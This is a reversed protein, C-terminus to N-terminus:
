GLDPLPVGWVPKPGEGLVWRYVELVMRAKAEWTFQEHARRLAPGVREEILGPNESVQELVRRFAAVIAERQGMEVLFGTRETVLERLGGYATVAPVLGVAMAELAVAGGFERISPFTFLDAEILRQQLEAHKVWGEFVVGGSIGEREVFVKLEGMQPGDGIVSVMVAGSRVLPAAAELLMDAGKYPVLRGVFVCRIPKEARRTRRLTFRVPDIANEPVYVCKEHYRSDMQSWTDGSGIVIAAAHKRTGRYGPMLKYVNRVYSLWEREKRRASDFAKPWPVGGNLPGIVFPVGARACKRAILSPTTPSLPTVRHVVDFEGARIREGFKKWILREHWYYSLAEVATVTTWGKGAGGRLMSAMKWLPKAVAESDIATFERGEVWGTREIAERNRIQTVLHADTMSAIAKSHSWGELPVSVWEPNAAEALLLVRLRKGESM